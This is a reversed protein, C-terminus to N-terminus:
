LQSLKWGRAGDRGVNNEEAMRIAYDKMELFFPTSVGIEAPSFFSPIHGPTSM